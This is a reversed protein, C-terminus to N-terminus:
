TLSSRAHIRKRASGPDCIRGNRLTLIQDFKDAASLQHSIILVSKGAQFRGIADRILDASAPDIASTPEDLILISPHKIL